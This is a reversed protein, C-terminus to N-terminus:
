CAVAAVGALRGCAAGGPIVAVTFQAASTTNGLACALQLAHCAGKVWPLKWLRVLAWAKQEAKLARWCNM